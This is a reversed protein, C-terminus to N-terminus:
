SVYLNSDYAINKQRLPKIVHFHPPITCHTTCEGQKKHIMFIQISGLTLSNNEQKHDTYNQHWGMWTLSCSCKTFTLLRAKRVTVSNTALPIIAPTKWAAYTYVGSTLIINSSNSSNLCTERQQCNYFCINENNNSKFLTTLM